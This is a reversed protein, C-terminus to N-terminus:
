TVQFFLFIAFNELFLARLGLEFKKYINFKGRLSSSTM